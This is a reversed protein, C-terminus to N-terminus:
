KIQESNYVKVDLPAALFEGAKGAFAKFHSSANHSSVADSDKWTEVMIYVNEQETHQFLDYSICGAEQKTEAILPKVEELFQAKRDPRVQFVAHIIILAETEEGQM